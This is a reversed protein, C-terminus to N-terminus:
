PGMQSLLHTHAFWGDITFLCARICTFCSVGSTHKISIDDFDILARNNADENVTFSEWVIETLSALEEGVLLPASCSTWTTSPSMEPCQLVVPSVWDGNPKKGKLQVNIKMKGSTYAYLRTRLSVTYVHGKVFCEPNPRFRIPLWINNWSGRARIRYFRNVIGSVIEEYVLPNFDRDYLFPYHSYGGGDNDEAKGNVALEACAESKPAYSKNSPLEFVFHDLLVKADLPFKDLIFLQGAVNTLDDGTWKWESSFWFWEGNRGMNGYTIYREDFRDGGM